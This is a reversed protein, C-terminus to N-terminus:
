LDSYIGDASVGTADVKESQKIPLFLVHKGYICVLKIGRDGLNSSSNNAASSPSQVCSKHQIRLMM